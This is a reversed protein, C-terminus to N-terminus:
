KMWDPIHRSLIADASSKERTRQVDSANCKLPYKELFEDHSISQRQICTGYHDRYTVNYQVCLESESDFLREVVAIEGREDRYRDGAVINM